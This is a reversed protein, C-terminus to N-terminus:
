ASDHRHRLDDRNRSAAWRRRNCPYRGRCLLARGTRRHRPNASFRPDAGLDSIVLPEEHDITYACMGIDRDIEGREGGAAAKIWLRDSDVLTMLATPCSLMEAALAVLADFEREPESDLLSLAHLAAVRRKEDAFSESLLDAPSM